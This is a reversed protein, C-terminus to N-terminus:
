PDRRAMALLTHGPAAAAQRRPVATPARRILETREGAGKASARKAAKALGAALVQQAPAADCRLCPLGDPAVGGGSVEPGRDQVPPIGADAREQVLDAEQMLGPPASPNAARGICQSHEDAGHAVGPAKMPEIVNLALTITRLALILILIHARHFVGLLDRWTPAIVKAVCALVALGARAGARAHRSRM